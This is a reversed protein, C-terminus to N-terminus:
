PTSGRQTTHTRRAPAATTNMIRASAKSRALRRRATVLGRPIHCIATKEMMPTVSHM